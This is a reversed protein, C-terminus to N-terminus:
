YNLMLATSRNPLKEVNLHGHVLFKLVPPERQESERDAEQGDNAHQQESPVDLICCWPYLHGSCFPAYPRSRNSRNPCQASRYPKCCSIRTVPSRVSQKGRLKVSYLHLPPQDQYSSDSRSKCTSNISGVRSFENCPSVDSLLTKGFQRQRASRIQQWKNWQLCVISGIEGVAGSKKRRRDFQETSGMVSVYSISLVSNASGALHEGSCFHKKGLGYANSLRTLCREIQSAFLQARMENEKQFYAHSCRGM